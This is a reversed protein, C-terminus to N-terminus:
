PQARMIRCIFFFAVALTFAFLLLADLFAAGTPVGIEFALAFGLCGRVAV